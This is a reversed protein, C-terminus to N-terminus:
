MLVMSRLLLFDFFETMAISIIVTISDGLWYSIDLARCVTIGGIDSDDRSRKNAAGPKRNM